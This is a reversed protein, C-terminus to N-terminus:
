FSFGREMATAEILTTSSQLSAKTNTKVAEVSDIFQISAALTKKVIFKPIGGLTEGWDSLEEDTFDDM